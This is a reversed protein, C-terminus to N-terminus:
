RIYLISLCFGVTYCLFTYETDQSLVDHFLIHSLVCVCVCVCVCMCMHIVSDSQYVGSVLM